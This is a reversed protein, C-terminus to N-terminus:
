HALDRTGPVEGLRGLVEKLLAEIHDIKAELRAQYEPPLATPDGTRQSQSQEAEVARLEYDSRDSM